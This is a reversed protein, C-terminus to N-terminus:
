ESIMVLLPFHSIRILLATDQVELSEQYPMIRILLATDLSNPLAPQFFVKSSKSLLKRM